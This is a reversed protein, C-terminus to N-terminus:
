QTPRFKEERLSVDLAFSIKAQMRKLPGLARLDSSFGPVRFRKVQIDLVLTLDRDYCTLIFLSESKTWHKITLYQM